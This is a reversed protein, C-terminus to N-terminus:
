PQGVVEIGGLGGRAEATALGHLHRQGAGPGAASIPQDQVFGAVVEIGAMALLQVFPQLLPAAAQQHDAMIAFQQRVHLLDDLEVRAPQM